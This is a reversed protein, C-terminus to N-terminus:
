FGANEQPSRLLEEVVLTGYRHAAAAHFREAVRAVTTWQAEEPAHVVLWVHGQLALERHLKLLNIEYGFGAAGSAEHLHRDIQTRMETAGYEVMDASGFGAQRLAKRVQELDTGRPFALVVHGVPKFIGFSRPEDSKSMKETM